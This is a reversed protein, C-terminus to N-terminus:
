SVWLGFGQGWVGLVGFLPAAAPVQVELGLPSSALTRKRAGGLLCRGQADRLEEVGLYQSM